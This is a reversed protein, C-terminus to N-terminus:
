LNMCQLLMLYMKRLRWALLQQRRRAPPLAIMQDPHFTLDLNYSKHEQGVQQIRRHGGGGQRHSTGRSAPVENFGSGVVEKMGTNVAKMTADSMQTM